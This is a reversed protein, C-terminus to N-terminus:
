GMSYKIGFLIIGGRSLPALLLRHRVGGRRFCSLSGMRHLFAGTSIGFAKRGVIMGASKPRLAASELYISPNPETMDDAAFAPVCVCTLAMVLSLACTLVRQFSKTKIM